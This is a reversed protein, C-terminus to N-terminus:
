GRSFVHFIAVGTGGPLPFSSTYTILWGAALLGNVEAMVELKTAGNLERQFYLIEKVAPEAVLEINEKVAPM